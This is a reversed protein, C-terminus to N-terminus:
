ERASGAVSAAAPSASARLHHIMSGRCGLAAEMM